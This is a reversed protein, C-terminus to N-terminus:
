WAVEGYVPKTQPRAIFVAYANKEKGLITERGHGPYVVTDDPLSFLKGSISDSIIKFNTASTTYGPGGPFLTDGSFLYKGILFSLGGPTHGPTHIVRVQQDGFILLDNDNLEVDLKVPYKAADAAHGAVPVDSRTKIEKLDGTHDFHNHTMLIYKIKEATIQSDIRQSIKAPADILVAEGTSLCTILYANSVMDGAPEIVEVKINDTKNRETKM